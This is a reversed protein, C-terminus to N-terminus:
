KKQSYISVFWIAAVGLLLIGIGIFFQGLVALTGMNDEWKKILNRVTSDEVQIAPWLDWNISCGGFPDYVGSVIKENFPLPLFEM